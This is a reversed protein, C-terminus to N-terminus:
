KVHMMKKQLYNESIKLRYFYVGSQLNNDTFNVHHTGAPKYNSVLKKIPKGCIDFISIDVFSYTPIVYDINTSSNFPNPYNQNLHFNKPTIKIDDISTIKWKGLSDLVIQSAVEQFHKALTKDLISYYPINKCSGKFITSYVVCASLYSGKLTPHNWDSMHLYHLPFVDFEALIKDWAVGVPAVTFGLEDSYKMTNDNIKQQMDFFDDPWNQYWTMGDEFAWPLTFIINTSPHNQRIVACLSDLATKTPKATFYQPYATNRGGGQLIVYDWKQEQIKSKTTSSIAHDYLFLGNRIKRHIEIKKSSNEALKQFLAPMDNYNFYSSGIFLIKLENESPEAFVSAVLIPIILIFIKYWM